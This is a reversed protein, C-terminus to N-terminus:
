ETFIIRSAKSLTLGRGAFQGPLFASMLIQKAEVNEGVSGVDSVKLDLLLVRFAATDNFAKAYKALKDQSLTRVFILHSIRALDLAESLYYLNNNTVQASSSSGGAFILFKEDPHELISQIVYAVKSSAMAPMDTKIFDSTLPLNNFPNDTEEHTVTGQKFAGSAAKTASLAKSDRKRKRPSADKPARTRDNDRKEELQRKEEKAAFTILEQLFDDDDMHMIDVDAIKGIRHRLSGIKEGTLYVGHPVLDCPLGGWAKALELPLWRVDYVMSGTQAYRWVSNEVAATLHGEADM